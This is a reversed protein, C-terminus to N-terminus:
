QMNMQNMPNMMVKQTMNNGMNNMGMNNMGMNNMGMNNMGGMGTGQMQMQSMGQNMGPNMSNNMMNQNQGGQDNLTKALNFIPNQMGTEDM